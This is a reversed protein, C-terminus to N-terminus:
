ESARQGEVFWSTRVCPSSGERPLQAEPESLNVQGETWNSTEAGKANVLRLGEVFGARLVQQQHGVDSQSTAMCRNTTQLM